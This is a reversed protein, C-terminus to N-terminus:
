KVVNYQVLEERGGKTGVFLVMGVGPSVSIKYLFDSNLEKGDQDEDVIRYEISVVPLDRLSGSNFYSIEVVRATMAQIREMVKQDEIWASTHTRAVRWTGGKKLNAKDIIVWDSMSEHKIQVNAIDSEKLGLQKRVDDRALADRLEQELSEEVKKTDSEAFDLVQDGDVRFITLPSSTGDSLLKNAANSVSVLQYTKGNKEIKDSLKFNEQGGAATKYIWQSGIKGPFWLDAAMAKSIAEWPDPLKPTFVLEFGIPGLAIHKGSKSTGTIIILYSGLAVEDTPTWVAKDGDLATTGKINIVKIDVNAMEESFIVTIQKFEEIDEKEKISISKMRLPNPDTLNMEPVAPNDKGCGLFSVVVLILLFLKKKLM